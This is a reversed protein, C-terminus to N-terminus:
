ISQHPSPISALPERLRLAQVSLNATADVLCKTHMNVLLNYHRRFDARLIPYRVDVVLFVWRFVRRLGLNLALAHEGYTAISTLNAAQLSPGPLRSPSSPISCPLVSVEAGTDVLFRFGSIHDCIFFLRSNDPTVGSSAELPTSPLKGASAPKMLHPLVVDALHPRAVPLRFLAPPRCHPSKTASVNMKAHFDDRLSQLGVRTPLSSPPTPPQYLLFAQGFTAAKDGLLQQLRRLSQTPKRDGLKNSSILQQLRRHESVATRKILEAALTDLPASAPPTILLDCVEAAIEPPVSAAVNHSKQSQTTIRGITFQSNVQALWLQPDAPSFQPPRLSPASVASSPGDAPM